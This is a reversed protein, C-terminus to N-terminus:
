GGAVVPRGGSARLAEIWAWLQGLQEDSLRERYAPMHVAQRRWFWAIWAQRALRRSSGTRVWERFEAEDHVLDPFNGGLFGPVFGGISGPNPRGGAGEVGHCSLCGQTRAVERGAEVQKGGPRGIGEEAAAWSALDAVEDAGLRRGFAPMRVAQHRLREVVKPDDLWSRPAGFRVFEAMEQPGEVYMFANGGGFRPVSGWRSGPNPIEVGAAPHHCSTCGEAVALQQGRLIANDRREWHRLLARGAFPAVVLAAVVLPLAIATVRLLRRPM